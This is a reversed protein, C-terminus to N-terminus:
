IIYEVSLIVGFTPPEQSSGQTEHRPGRGEVGLGGGGGGGMGFRVLDQQVDGEPHLQLSGVELGPCEGGLLLNM